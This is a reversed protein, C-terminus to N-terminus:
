HYCWTYFENDDIVAVTVVQLILVNLNRVGDILRYDEEAV